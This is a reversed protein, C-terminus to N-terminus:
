ETGNNIWVDNRLDLWRTGSSRFYCLLLLDHCLLQCTQNCSQLWFIIFPCMCLVITQTYLLEKWGKRKGHYVYFMSINASFSPTFWYPLWYGSSIPGHNQSKRFWLSNNQFRLFCSIISGLHIRNLLGQSYYLHYSARNM